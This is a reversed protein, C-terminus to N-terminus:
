NHCLNDQSPQVVTLQFVKLLFNLLSVERLVNIGDVLRWRHGVIIWKVPLWNLGPFYGRLEEEREINHRMEQKQNKQNITVLAPLRESPLLSISFNVNKAEGIM